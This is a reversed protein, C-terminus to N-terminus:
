IKSKLSEVKATISALTIQIDSLQQAFGDTTEAKIPHKAKRIHRAERLAKFKDVDSKRYMSVPRNYSDLTVDTPLIGIERLVGPTIWAKSVFKGLQRSTILPDSGLKTSDSVSSTEHKTTAAETKMETQQHKMFNDLVSGVKWKYEGNQTLSFPVKYELLEKRVEAISAYNTHLNLDIVIEKTKKYTKM